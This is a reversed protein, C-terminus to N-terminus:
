NKLDLRISPAKTIKLFPYLPHELIFFIQPDVLKSLPHIFGGFM